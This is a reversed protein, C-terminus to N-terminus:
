KADDKRFVSLIIDLMNQALKNRDFYKEVYARGHYHSKGNQRIRAIAALLDQENEPEMIEGAHAELVMDRAEGEVGKIRPVNSAMLEFMKSPIVKAFLPERKLHILSADSLAILEHITEKPVMGTFCVKTLGKDIVEKELMKKCAGDGVILFLVDLDSKNKLREAARLIVDLGHAMGITGIYSCIFAEKGAVFRDRYSM